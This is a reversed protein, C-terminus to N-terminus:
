PCAQIIARRKIAKNVVENEFFEQEPMPLEAAMIDKRDMAELMRYEQLKQKELARLEARDM